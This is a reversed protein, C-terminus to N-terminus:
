LMMGGMMLFMMAGIGIGGLIYLLSSSSSKDKPEIVTVDVSVSDMKIVNPAPTLIIKYRGSENFTHKIIFRGESKDETIFGEDISSSQRNRMGNDKDHDMDYDTGHEKDQGMAHEMKVPQIVVSLKLGTVPKKDAIDNISVKILSEQGKVIPPVEFMAEYNNVRVEKIIEVAKGHGDHSDGHMAMMMCGNLTLIFAASIIKSLYEAFQHKTLM